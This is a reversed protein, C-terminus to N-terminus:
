TAVTISRYERATTPQAAASWMRVLRTVSARSMAMARRWGGAPTMKWESRPLVGGAGEVRVALLVLDPTGQSPGTDAVVVGDRFREEGGVLFFEDVGAGPWGQGVQFSFGGVPDLVVEVCCTAM